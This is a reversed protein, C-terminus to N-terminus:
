IYLMLIVQKDEYIFNPKINSQLVWIIIICFLRTNISCVVFIVTLNKDQLLVYIVSLYILLSNFIISCKSSFDTVSTLFLWLKRVRVNDFHLTCTGSARIGLKMEKKGVEFGPTDREM